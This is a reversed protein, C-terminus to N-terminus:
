SIRWPPNKRNEGAKYIVIYHGDPDQIGAERWLWSQDQPFQLITIGKRELESIKKDVDAVEFYIITTNTITLPGLHISFTADGDPCEFRAYHQAKVILILGLLTYFEISKEINSVTITVQNLNM